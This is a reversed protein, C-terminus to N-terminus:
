LSADYDYYNNAYLHSHCGDEFDVDQAFVYQVTAKMQLVEVDSEEAVADKPPTSQILKTHVVADDETSVGISRYTKHQELMSGSFLPDPFLYTVFEHQHDCM